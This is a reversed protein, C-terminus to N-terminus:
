HLDFTTGSVVPIMQYAYPMMLMPGQLPLESFASRAGFARKLLSDTGTLESLLGKSEGFYKLRPEGKIGALKATAEVADYFNGIEDILGVAKAQNGTYIRGEALTRVKAVDMHRGEAVAAIFQGYVDALMNKLYAREDPTMPRQGSGVDKWKGATVTQDVIGLKQM